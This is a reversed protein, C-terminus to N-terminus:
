DHPRRVLLPKVAQNDPYGRGSTVPWIVNRSSLAGSASYALREGSVADGQSAWAAQAVLNEANQGHRTLTRGPRRRM